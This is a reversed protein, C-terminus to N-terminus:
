PAVQLPDHGLDSLVQRCRALDREVRAVGGPGIDDCEKLGQLHAYLGRYIPAHLEGVVGNQCGDGCRLRDTDNGSCEHSDSTCWAHGNSRIATSAAISRVMSGKTKFMVVSENRGRWNVLRAGYGGALRASPSLWGGVVEDKLDDLEDQIEMYLAMEQDENLAYGLTMDMSWHKFHDKLYRLDGFQSRAAYNAFTRRFQHTRISKVGCRKAFDALLGNWRQISVTRVLNGKRSDRGLFIAGHHDQADALASADTGCLRLQDIEDNLESRLPASWREMVKIATVAAEPIMWETRGEDTKLSRSKMWWYREGDAGESSYWSDIGLFTLEHNRCGSLSAIVVYCATRVTTLERGLAKVGETWGKEALLRNKKENTTARSLEKSSSDVSATLDRLDLLRHARQVLSWSAQFLLSFETHPILPTTRGESLRLQTYGALHDASSDPWPHAPMPDDTHLSLEHLAEVSGLRKVVTAPRFNAGARTARQKWEEAYNACVIPTADSLSSVGLRQLYELFPVLGKFFNDLTSWKPRKCGDRGRRIYRYTAQKIVERFAEPISDFDLKTTSKRQNTPAGTLWWISDGYRSLIIWEHASVKRMAVILLNREFADLGRAGSPQDRMQAPLASM